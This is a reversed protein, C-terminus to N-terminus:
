QEALWLVGALSIWSMGYAVYCGWATAYGGNGAVTPIRFSENSANGSNVNQVIHVGPTSAPRMGAPITFCNAGIAPATILGKGVVLGNPLRRIASMGAGGYPTGYDSSSVYPIEIGLRQWGTDTYPNQSPIAKWIPPSGPADVTLVSEDLAGTTIPVAYGSPAPPTQGVSPNVALYDVGNYRVVQGPQYATGASWAGVYDIPAAALPSWYPESM